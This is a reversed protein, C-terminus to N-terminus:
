EAKVTFGCFAFVTRIVGFLNSPAIIDDGYVSIIGRQRSLDVIARVLAYFILSELEFTFGNGMSSFMNLEHKVGDIMTYKVRLDDLLAFWNPPLLRKVLERSVSDSASSLDITALGDKQARQALVQNITQDNLDVHAKWKLRRRIFDGAAKQFHMNLDPEKAAVRDITDSKPVTFLISSDVFRPTLVSPNLDVWLHDGWIRPFAYRWMEQTVDLSGSYKREVMGFSRNVSTSAGGSFRGYLLNPPNPGIVRKIVQSARNLVDELRTFNNPTNPFVRFWGVNSNIRVNTRGNREEVRLWKAIAADRRARASDCFLNAYKSFLFERLLTAKPGSLGNLSRQLDAVIRQHLDAPLPQHKYVM